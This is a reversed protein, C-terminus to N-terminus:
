IIHLEHKARSVAVYLLQNKEKSKNEMMQHQYHWRNQIKNFDQYDVYVCDYTSGQSKHATLAYGYDLDKEIIMFQDALNESEDLLKNDQIRSFLLTPYTEKLKKTLVNDKIDYNPVEVEGLQTLTTHVVDKTKNFLLPHVERFQSKTMIKDNYKYIDECIIMSDKLGKYRKFDEKTSKRANVKEALNALQNIIVENQDVSIFFLTPTPYHTTTNKMKILYGSCHIRNIKFNNTQEIHTIMYDCGNIIYPNPFGITTYSLLVENIVYPERYGLERRIMQNYNIVANNTYCLCKTTFPYKKMNGVFSTVFDDKMKFEKLLDIDEDIFERIMTAIDIIISGKAQRVIETLEHVCDLSFALSDPKYCMNDKILLHQSPSPIQYPDGIMILKKKTLKVYNILFTLDKDTVMSVEDLIFLEYSALKKQQPNSYKHTGIYSHDKLKGLLSALTLVAIEKVTKTNLMSFLVMKGKNTPCLGCLINTNHLAGAFKKTLFTKGTGGAAKLVFLNEENKLFALYEEYIRLQDNTLM